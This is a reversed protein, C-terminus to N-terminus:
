QKFKVVGNVLEKVQLQKGFLADSVIMQEELQHVKKIGTAVAANCPRGVVRITSTQKIVKLIEELRPKVWQHMGMNLPEEQVWIIENYGKIADKVLDYPFPSLEEIRSISISVNNLQRAQLLCYYVQGSCLILKDSQKNTIETDKYVPQFGKDSLDSLSSKCLPHRLLSKSFPLILPKRYDRKLQRRLAHFYNSPTSCYVLQMNSQKHAANYSYNNYNIPEDCLQLFREIRCSSHEPGQGDYGHPLNLVLGTMQMWKREGSVIFQDIMVQANNAFDGFQAEWIVLTVPNVFSYGLEFGLIGFESLSSNCITIKGPHKANSEFLSMHQESKQDVLIGHRQSFTGREVDQGSMRVHNNEQQLSKFALYECTSWDLLSNDMISKKRNNLIRDLQSHCTFTSPVQLEEGALLLQKKAVTTPHQLGKSEKWVSSVWERPEAKYTTSSTYNQQLLDFIRKSNEKVENETISQENVLNKSYKQLVPVMQEIKTYMKPQTFMPQDIENHGYKRYCVIDIVVDKKFTQRWEIAVEMAFVVAEVDDGNVHIIPAGVTKAVDSCYPTSRSYRPDTTFGIQNNVIIHITGNVQYSPLESCGFTEYVVGQGAFAADGHILIPLANEGHEQLARVQGIVVPDVAELHSPNAMLTLKIRKGSPTPRDYTMGLHYKVDGSGEIELHTGKFENFLSENPKRVVNSLVNLRGRHPMGMVVSTIGLEVSRDILAKMGPILSECGELGFRKDSPYKQAVFQEFHDAWTLRDLIVKKKDKSFKFPEPVEFKNRLWECQTRSPIHFYEIGISKCYISQLTSLIQKLSMKPNNNQFRSLIGPGLTYEQDMNSLGYYKPFLEEPPNSELDAHGLELPDLTAIHHGRVQYARVLLQVKQHASIDSHSLESLSPMSGSAIEQINGGQSVKVLDREFKNLEATSPDSKLQEFYVRWSSHVSSPNKLFDKYLQESYRNILNRFLRTPVM